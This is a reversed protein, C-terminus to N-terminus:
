SHPAPEVLLPCDIGEDVDILKNVYAQLLEVIAVGIGLWSEEIMFSCMTFPWSTCMGMDNLCAVM